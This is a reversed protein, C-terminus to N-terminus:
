EGKIIIRSQCELVKATNNNTVIPYCKHRASSSFYDYPILTVWSDGTDIPAIYIERKCYKCRLPSYVEIDHVM